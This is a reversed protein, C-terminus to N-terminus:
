DETEWATSVPEHLRAEDRTIYKGNEDKDNRCYQPFVLGEDTWTNGNNFSIKEGCHRCTSYIAM